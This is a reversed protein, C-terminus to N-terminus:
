HGHEKRLTSGFVQAHRDVILSLAPDLMEPELRNVLHQLVKALLGYRQFAAAIGVDGEGIVDDIRVRHALQLPRHTSAALLSCGGGVGGGCRRGGAGGGSVAVSHM